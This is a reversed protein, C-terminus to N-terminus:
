LSLRHWTCLVTIKKGTVTVAHALHTLINGKKCTGDTVAQVLDKLSNKKIEAPRHRTCLEKLKKKGTVTVAHALHM